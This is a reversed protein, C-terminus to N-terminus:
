QQFYSSVLAMESNIYIDNNQRIRRQKGTFSYVVPFTLRLAGSCFKNKHHVICAHRGARALTLVTDLCQFHKNESQFGYM